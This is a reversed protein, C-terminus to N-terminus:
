AQDEMFDEQGALYRLLAEFDELTVDDVLVVIM